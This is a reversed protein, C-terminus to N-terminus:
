NLARRLSLRWVIFFVGIMEILGFASTLLLDAPRVPVVGQAELEQETGYFSVYKLFLPKGPNLYNTLVIDSRLAEVFILFLFLFLLGIALLSASRRTRRGSCLLVVLPPQLLAAPLMVLVWVGLIDSVNYPSIFFQWGVMVIISLFLLCLVSVVAVSLLKGLLFLWRPIATVRIADAIRYGEDRAFADAVLVPLLLMIFILLTPFLNILAITSVQLRTAQDGTDFKLLLARIVVSVFMLVACAMLTGYLVVRQRWVVLLEYWVIERLQVAKM